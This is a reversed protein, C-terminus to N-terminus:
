LMEQVYMYAVQDRCISNFLLIHVEGNHTYLDSLYTQTQKVSKFFSFSTNLTLNHKVPKIFASLQIRSISLDIDKMAHPKTNWLLQYKYLLICNIEDQRLVASFRWSIAKVAFLLPGRLLKLWVTNSCLNKVFQGILRYRWQSSCAAWHM